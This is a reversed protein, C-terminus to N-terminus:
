MSNLAIKAIYRRTPNFSFSSETLNSNYTQNIHDIHAAREDVGEPLTSATLKILMFDNIMQRLLTDDTREFTWSEFVKQVVYGKRLATRLEPATFTGVFARQEDTHDCLKQQSTEACVSCLTTTTTQLFLSFCVEACLSAYDEKRALM